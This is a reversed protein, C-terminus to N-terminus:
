RGPNCCDACGEACATRMDRVAESFEGKNHFAIARLRYARGNSYKPDFALLQDASHIADDLQGSKLNSTAEFDWAYTLQGRVSEAFTEPKTPLRVPAAGDRAVLVLRPYGTVGFKKALAREDDGDEPNIRVKVAPAIATSVGSDSLVERDFEKCYPCWDTRFYLLMPSGSARQENSASRFGRAGESWPFTPLSPVARPPAAEIRAGLAFKPSPAAAPVVVVAATAVATPPSPRVAVAVPLAAQRAAEALREEHKRWGLGVGGALLAIAVLARLLAVFRSGEAQQLPVVTPPAAAPQALSAGCGLCRKAQAACSRACVPCNVREM